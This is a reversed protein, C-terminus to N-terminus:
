LAIYCCTVNILASVSLISAKAVVCQFLHLTTVLAAHLLYVPKYEELNQM